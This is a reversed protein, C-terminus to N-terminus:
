GATGTMVPMGGPCTCVWAAVKSAARNIEALPAHQLALVTAVATFADGAGVTDVTAVSQGPLAAREDGRLLVSGREGRTYILMDLRATRRLHQYFGDPDRPLSFMDAILPLEEDNLKLFNAYRLCFAIVAPTYHGQRLNIDVVVKGAPPLLTVLMHLLRQNPPHRQVLSGFYLVEAARVAAVLTVDPHIVDWAVPSVIDYEPVGRAKLMVEVKGTPYRANRQVHCAVGRRALEVLLDDGAADNGVASMLRAQAGMLTAHYIFNGAAGGIQRGGPYCDWLLEGVAIINM